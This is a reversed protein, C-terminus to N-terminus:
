ESLVAASLPVSLIDEGDTFVFLGLSDVPQAGWAYPLDPLKREEVIGSDDLRVEWIGNKPGSLCADDFCRTVLLTGPRDTAYADFPEGWDPVYPVLPKGFQDGDRPALYIGAGSPGEADYLLLDGDDTQCPYPGTLGFRELNEPKSWRGPSRRIGFLERSDESRPSYFVTSADPSIALNYLTDIHALLEVRWGDQELYAIFPRKRTWDDGSRAFVM